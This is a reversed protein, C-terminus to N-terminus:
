TGRSLLSLRSVDSVPAPFRIRNRIAQRFIKLQLNHPSCVPLMTAYEKIYKKEDHQQMREPELGTLNYLHSTIPWNETAAQRRERRKSPNRKSQKGRYSLQTDLCRFSLVVREDEGRSFLLKWAKASYQPHGGRCFLEGDHDGEDTISHVACKGDDVLNLIRRMKNNSTKITPIVALCNLEIM